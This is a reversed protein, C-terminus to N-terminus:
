IRLLGTNNQLIDICEARSKEGSLYKEFLKLLTYTDIILSGYKRALAVQKEHVPEREQIPKNKQHDMILLACIKTEDADPNDDLFSQYHRELQAVNESKVNHNIGKIEGIFTYEDVATLFDERKVDKFDSFDCGLMEELIELVVKVLEEGNTYLISKYKNNKNIVKRAEEINTEAIQIKTQNDRIIEIQKDDDFMNIEEMWEPRRQEQKILGLTKLFAEITKWDDLLLTSIILNGEKITTGKESKVSKTLEESQMGGFYFAAPIEQNGLLTKTNEYVIDIRELPKYLNKLIGNLKPIMNKLECQNQYGFNRYGRSSPIYYYKFVENQPLLIINQAKCSNDIMKSLSSFDAKKDITENSNGSYVWIDNDQLVIIFFLFFDLSEADHLSNVKVKTNQYETEKGTYTLIQIM